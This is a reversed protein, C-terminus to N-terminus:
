FSRIENTISLDTKFGKIHNQRRSNLLVLSDIERGLHTAAVSCKVKFLFFINKHIEDLSEYNGQGKSIVLDAEQFRCQFSESCEKLITGPIDSGNAIVEVIRSIGSQEADLFTVDNVVPSGRVVYTIKETPLVEIFLRDFVIEGANDGLYLIKKSCEVANSFEDLTEPSIPAALSEEVAPVLKTHDANPDVVFDIVNGAIAIRLATELPNSAQRILKKLEPYLALARHNCIEKAEKYPDDNGTVERIIRHITGIMVPSPDALSVEKIAQIARFVVTEHVAEDSTAQIAGQLSQRVICPLCELDTRM